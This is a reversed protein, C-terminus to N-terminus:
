ERLKQLTVHLHAGGRRSTEVMRRVPYYGAHEILITFRRAVNKAAPQILPTIKGTSTGNITVRAGPPDSTVLLHPTMARALRGLQRQRFDEDGSQQVLIAIIGGTMMVFAFIAVMLKWRPIGFLIGQRVDTLLSELRDTSVRLQKVAPGLEAQQGSLLDIQKQLSVLDQAM